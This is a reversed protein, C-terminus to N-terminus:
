VRGTGCIATGASAPIGFLNEEVAALTRFLNTVSFLLAASRENMENVTRQSAADLSSGLVQACRFRGFLSDCVAAFRCRALEPDFIEHM